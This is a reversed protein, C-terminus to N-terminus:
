RVWPIAIDEPIVVAMHKRSLPVRIRKVLVREIGPGTDFVGHLPDAPLAPREHVLYDFFKVFPPKLVPIVQLLRLTM